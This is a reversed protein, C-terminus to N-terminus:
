EAWVGGRAIMERARALRVVDAFGLECAEELTLSEARECLERYAGLPWGPVAFKRGIRLRTLAPLAPTLAAIAADRLAPFGFSTSAYFARQWDSTSREANPGYTTPYIFSLVVELDGTPSSMCINYIDESPPKEALKKRFFSSQAELLSRHVKYLTNEFRLIVSGDDFWFRDSLNIQEYSSPTSVDDSEEDALAYDDTSSPSFANEVYASPM